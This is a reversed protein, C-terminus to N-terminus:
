NATEVYERLDATRAETLKTLCGNQLLPWITGSEDRPGNEALCQADRFALWKRQADLLRPATKGGRARASGYAQKWAANLAADAAKYTEFSCINMDTQTRADACAGASAAASLLLAAIM